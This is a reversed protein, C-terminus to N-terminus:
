VDVPRVRLSKESDSSIVAESFSGSFALLGSKELGKEQPIDVLDVRTEDGLGFAAICCYQKPIQNALLGSPYREM